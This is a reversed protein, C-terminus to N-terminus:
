QPPRDGPDGGPDGRSRRRADAMAGGARAVRRAGRRAGDGLADDADDAIQLLWEPNSLVEDTLTEGITLLDTGTFRPSWPADPDPETVIALTTKMATLLLHNEPRTTLDPWVLELHEGTKELVIRTLEPLIELSLLNDEYQYITETVTKLLTNWPKTGTDDGTLLEPHESLTGLAARAITELGDRSFVNELRTRGEDLVVGLLANGVGTILKERAVDDVGLYRGPDELIAAGAGSLTSRLVLETWDLIRMEQVSDTNRLRPAVDKVLGKTLLRVLEQTQAHGTVLAPDEAVTELASAMLRSVVTQLQVESLRLTAFDIDDLAEVVGAIIRGHKSSRDIIGPGTAVYDIGIEIVTGVIRQLASPNPDTGNAYQEVTLIAVLADPEFATSGEARQQEMRQFLIYQEVLEECDADTRAATRCKRYLRELPTGEKLYVEAQDRFFTVAAAFDAGPAIQPLPLTLERRRTSDVYALRAQQGLKVGAQIAFLVMETTAIM